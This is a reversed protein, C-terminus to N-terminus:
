PISADDLRYTALLEQYLAVYARELREAMQHRAPRPALSLDPWIPEGFAIWLRARRFPLWPGVRNLTHTGLAVCPLVPVNSRYAILCLGRKAKGGRCLSQQGVAVGGEPFVGVVRGSAARDIATRIATIPVGFRRVPFAGVAYLFASSWWRGYFEIRSMWDIYRDILAGFIFPELHSLHTPALIYGGSREAAEKRLVGAVITQTWIFRAMVRGISYLPPTWWRLPVVTQHNRRAVPGTPKPESTLLAPATM